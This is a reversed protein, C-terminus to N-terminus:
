KAGCLRVLAANADRLAAGEERASTLEEKLRAVEALLADREDLIAILVPPTFAAAYARFPKDKSPPAGQQLRKYEVLAASLVSRADDPLEAEAKARLEEPTPTM